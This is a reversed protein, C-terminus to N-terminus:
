GPELTVTIKHGSVLHRSLIFGALGLVDEVNVLQLTAPVEVGASRMAYAYANLEDGINSAGCKECSATLKVGPGNM